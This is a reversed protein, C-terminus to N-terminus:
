RHIEESANGHYLRVDRFTGSENIAGYPQQTTVGTTIEKREPDFMRHSTYVIPPM